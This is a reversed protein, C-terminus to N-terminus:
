LDVYKRALAFGAPALLCNYVPCLAFPLWGVWLFQREFILGLAGYMLFYAPTLFAMLTWQSPTSSVDVQRRLTGVSYATLTLLLANAGFVHAGMTDLFFGWAFGFCQGTVAGNTAAVAATLILLIQPALGFAPLYSSWFWHAAMGGLFFFVGHLYKM